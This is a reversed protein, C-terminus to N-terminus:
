ARATSEAGRALDRFGAAGPAAGGADGAFSYPPWPGTLELRIGPHREALDAVAAAFAEDQQGDLLYAANLVMAATSGTLQPAQPPHLRAEVALRSLAAHVAEASALADQRANKSASLEDRRRRLYAAGAGPAPAGTGPGGEAAPGAQHGTEPRRAVYAKVGWEARARIRRLATHLDGSREALMAAVGADGQYVTALRMPVVPGHRAVAAVVRHHARATAELWALDELNRRLATEGFEALPVDEAAAALGGAAIARVPGRGVGTLPALSAMAAPEAVAYVWVGTGEAM